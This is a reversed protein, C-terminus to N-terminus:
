PTIGTNLVLNDIRCQADLKSWLSYLPHEKSDQKVYTVGTQGSPLGTMPVALPRPYWSEPYPPRLFLEYRGNNNPVEIIFGPAMCIVNPDDFKPCEAHSEPWLYVGITQLAGDPRRFTYEVGKAVFRYGPNKYGWAIHVMDDAPKVDVANPAARLIDTMCQVAAPDVTVDEPQAALAESAGLALGALGCAFRSFLPL